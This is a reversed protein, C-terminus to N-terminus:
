RRARELTGIWARLAAVGAEDVRETALPPMHLLIGERRRVLRMLRGADPEGPSVYEPVFSTIMAALAAPTADYPLWMDIKRRPDYCRPGDNEPRQQNHCSGCNAHLSGLAAREVPTLARTTEPRPAVSLLGSDALQALSVARTAEVGQAPSSPAHAEANALQVASFGLVYSRRGAHCGGCKKAPPADHQTGLINEAGEPALLADSQDSSWVYSAGAWDRAGPGRKVLVRTELRVGNLSFEKFLRSGVPFSWDDMNSSDIQTGAPLALWRKKDAGDSWLPFAPEYALADDRVAHAIPDRYLGAESLRTPLSALSEVPPADCTRFPPMGVCAAAVCSLALGVFLRARRTTPPAAEIM